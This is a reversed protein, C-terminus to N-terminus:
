ERGPSLERQMAANEESRTTSGLHIPAPLFLGPVLQCQNDYRYCLMRVANAGIQDMPQMIRTLGGNQLATSPLGTGGVISVEDPVAIGLGALHLQIQEAIHDSMCFIADPRFGSKSFLREVEDRLEQSIMGDPTSPLCLFKVEPDLDRQCGTAFGHRLLNQSVVFHLPAIYVFRRRGAKYLARGVRYGAGFYDSSVFNSTAGINPPNITVVPKGAEEYARCLKDNNKDGFLMLMDIQEIQRLLERFVQEARAELEQFSSAEVPMVSINRRMAAAMRVAGLYITESWNLSQNICHDPNFALMNTGIILARRPAEKAKRIFTGRGQVTELVGEKALKAVVKQVTRTSVGLHSALDEATPLRAEKGSLRNAKALFEREIYDLVREAPQLSKKLEVPNM